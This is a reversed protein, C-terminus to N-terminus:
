QLLELVSAGGYAHWGVYEQSQIKRGAWNADSYADLTGTQRQWPYSSVARPKGALYKALRESREWANHDPASMSRCLEKFAFQIDARDQSMYNARATLARYQTSAGASLPQSSM